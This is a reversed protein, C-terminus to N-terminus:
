FLYGVNFGLRLAVDLGKIPRLSLPFATKNDFRDEYYSSSIYNQNILTYNLGIGLFVDLTFGPKNFKKIFRDGFQATVEIGRANKVLKTEKYNQTSDEFKTSFDGTAYRLDYALYWMGKNPKPSRYFKHKFTIAYGSSYRVDLSPKNHNRFFPEKIFTYQIEFGMKKEIYYEVYIPMQDAFVATPNIGVIFSKYLNYGYKGRYRQKGPKKPVYPKRTSEKKNTNVPPEAPSTEDPTPENMNIYNGTLIGQEDYLSWTGVKTGDSVNGEMKKVGNPYYGTYKGSGNDYEAEGEKEGSEYFYEWKGSNQGNKVKGRSKLKGNPFYEKIDGDGSPVFESEGKLEGTDYYYSWKGEKQGAKHEGEASIKGNEHFHQWNGAPKGNKYNGNESVVGNKHYSKWEGNRQGNKEQGESQISGDPYYYTWLSDSVGDKIYGNVKVNGNDHFENYEGNGNDLTASGKKLGSENYYNWNGDQKGNNYSGESKLLTNEYYTKWHDNKKGAKMAGEMSLTGNEYYYKWLGDQKNKAYDGQAKINGNEYYHKWAGSMEGQTYYGESKKAGGLYYSVYLSDIKKLNVHYYFVEKISTSDKDYYKVIKKLGQSWGFSSIFTLVITLYAKM